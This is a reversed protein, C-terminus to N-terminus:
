TGSEARGVVVVVAEEVLVGHLDGDIAQGEGEGRSCGRVGEAGEKVALRRAGSCSRPDLRHLFRAKRHLTTPARSSHPRRHLCKGPQPLRM